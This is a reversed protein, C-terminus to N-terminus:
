LLLSIETRSEGKTINKWDGIKQMLEVKGNTIRIRTDINEQDYNDSQLSVRKRLKPKGYKKTLFSVSRKYEKETLITLLEKEENTKTYKM